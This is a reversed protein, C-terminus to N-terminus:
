SMKLFKLFQTWKVGLVCKKFSLTPLNPIQLPNQPHFTDTTQFHYLANSLLKPHNKAWKLVNQLICRTWGWFASKLDWIKWSQCGRIFVEYTKILSKNGHWDRNSLNIKIHLLRTGISSYSFNIPLLNFCM